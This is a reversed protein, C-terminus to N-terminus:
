KMPHVESSWESDQPNKNDVHKYSPKHLNKMSLQTTRIEQGGQHLFMAEQKAM